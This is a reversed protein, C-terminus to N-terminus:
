DRILVLCLAFHFFFPSLFIIFSFTKTKSIKPAIIILLKGSAVLLNCASSSATKGLPTTYKIRRHKDCKDCKPMKEGKSEVGWGQLFNESMLESLRMKKANREADELKLLHEHSEKKREAEIENKRSKFVRLEANEAKLREMEDLFEQKVSKMLGDKFEEIQMEFESPEAYFDDYNM